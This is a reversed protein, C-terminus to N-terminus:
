RKRIPGTIQTQIPVNDLADPLPADPETRLNIKLAYGGDIRTIGIGVVDALADFREFARQKAARAQELTAPM